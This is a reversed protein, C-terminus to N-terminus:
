GRRPPQRPEDAPERLDSFDIDDFDGRGRRWRSSRPATETDAETRGPTDPDPKTKRPRTRARSFRVLTVGIATTLPIALVVGTSAILIRLLDDAFQETQLAELLPRDYVVLLLLAPLTVGAVVFAITPLSAAAHDRGTRMAKAFLRRTSRETESLKWVATAQTTTVDILLGISALIVGCILVSSLRLDPTAAALAYDGETTIGTLHAWSTAIAGLAAILLLAALSGVLATTTAVNLGHAAFLAVFLIAASAILGVLIPNAGTVLAPFLFLVAIVGAAGLGLLAAFGRWRAVLIVAAVFVLAFVLLPTGRSFDSFQYQAPQGDLPPIRLLTVRQGIPIGSAYVASSVPVVVTKGQDEGSLVQVSLNACVQTNVGSTSGPVGECSIRAVNTVRGAPYSVGAVGFTTGETNVHSAVDKPWLAILGAITWVALPVLVVLM